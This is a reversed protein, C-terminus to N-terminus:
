TALWVSLVELWAPSGMQYLATPPLDWPIQTGVPARAQAQGQPQPLLPGGSFATGTSPHAPTLQIPLPSLTDWATPVAQTAFWFPSLVDPGDGSPLTAGWTGKGTHRWEAARPPGATHLAKQLASCPVSSLGFWM